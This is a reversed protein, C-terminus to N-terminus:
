ADCHLSRAPDFSRGGSSVGLTLPVAAGMNQNTSAGGRAPARGGKSRTDAKPCAATRGVGARSVQKDEVRVAREAAVSGCLAPGTRAAGFGPADPRRGLLRRAM